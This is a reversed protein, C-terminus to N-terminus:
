VSRERPSVDWHGNPSVETSARAPIPTVAARGARVGIPEGSPAFIPRRAPARRSPTAYIQKTAEVLHVGAFARFFRNGIQEWAQATGLQFRSRTPPVFLAHRVTLPTFQHDRLLRSIQGQTFPHGHGFPTRELRAWIGRRNPVVVCLRGTGSLVRWVEGLMLRLQETNEVAHVLLIRDMEADALPLQGEDVLSVRFPGEIPWHIVGQAAPMFGVVREAEHLFPRLYPTAYGLGLLSMRAVDPWLARIQRRILRRAMLGLPTGYFEHLDVVDSYM